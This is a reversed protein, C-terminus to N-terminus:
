MPTYFYAKTISGVDVHEPLWVGFVYMKVYQVDLQVCVKHIM